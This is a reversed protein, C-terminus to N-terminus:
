LFRKNSLRTLQNQAGRTSTEQANFKSDSIVYSVNRSM